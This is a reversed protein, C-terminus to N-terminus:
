AVPFCKYAAKYAVTRADWLRTIEVSVLILQSSYLFFQYFNEHTFCILGIKLCFKLPVRGLGLKLYFLVRRHTQSELAQKTATQNLFYTPNKIRFYISFSIIQPKWLLFSSFNTATWPSHSSVYITITHQLLLLFPPLSPSILWTNTM